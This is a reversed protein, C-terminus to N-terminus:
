KCNTYILVRHSTFKLTDHREIVSNNEFIYCELTGDYSYIWKETLNKIVFLLSNFSTRSPLRLHECPPRAHSLRRLVQPRRRLLLLAPLAPARPARARRRRRARRGAGRRVGRVHLLARPLVAVAVRHDDGRRSRGRAM